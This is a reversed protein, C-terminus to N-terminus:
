EKPIAPPLMAGLVSIIQDSNVEDMRSGSKAHPFYCAMGWRNKDIVLGVTDPGDLWGVQVWIGPQIKRVESTPLVRM